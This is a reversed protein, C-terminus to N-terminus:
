DRIKRSNQDHFWAQVVSLHDGQIEVVGGNADIYSTGGSGTKVKLARAINKLEEPNRPLGSILTVM